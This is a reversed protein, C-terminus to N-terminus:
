PGTVHPWGQSLLWVKNEAEHEVCIEWAHTNTHDKERARASEEAGLGRFLWTM